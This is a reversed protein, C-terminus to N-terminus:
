NNEQNNDKDTEVAPEEDKKKKKFLNKLFGKKHDKDEEQAVPKEDTKVDKKMVTDETVKKEATPPVISEVDGAETTVGALSDKGSLKDATTKVVPPKAKPLASLILTDKEASVSDAAVPSSVAPPEVMRVAQHQDTSNIRTVPPHPNVDSQDFFLTRGGYLGGAFLGIILVTMMVEGAVSYREKRHDILEIEEKQEKEEEVRHMVEQIPVVPPTHFRYSLARKRIEEAKTEIDDRRKQAMPAPPEGSVSPLLELESLYAWATSRGEIWVMDTPKLQQQWLEDITFPGSQRNNRLLLYVKQM